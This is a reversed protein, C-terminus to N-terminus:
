DTPLNELNLLDQPRGAAKKMRRIWQLNAFPRGQRQIVTAFLEDLPVEPMSPVFDFLDLFGLDTGLM